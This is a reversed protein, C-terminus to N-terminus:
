VSNTRGGRWLSWQVRWGIPAARPSFVRAGGPFHQTGPARLAERDVEGTVMVWITTRELGAYKFSNKLNNMAYAAVSANIFM